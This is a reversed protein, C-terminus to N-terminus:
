KKNFSEVLSPDIPEGNSAYYITSDRKGELYIVERKIDGSPYFSKSSIRDRNKRKFYATSQGAVVGNPYYDTHTYISDTYDWEEVDSVLDLVKDIKKMLKGETYYRAEHLDDCVCGTLIGDKYFKLDDRTYLYKDEEFYDCDKASFNESNQCSLAILLIFAFASIKRSNM